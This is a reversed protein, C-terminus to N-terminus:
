EKLNEDEPIIGFLSSSFILLVVIYYMAYSVFHAINAGKVGYIDVFYVSTFYIMFLLFAETVIFHWFMKKAIFQYAIVIALVKTFDGLLQWLFLNEVMEFEETLFIAVIFTRLLYITLLGLGLVPIITKYFDFVENRFEKKSEIESFRPLLYLMM